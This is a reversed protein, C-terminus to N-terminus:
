LIYRSLDQDRVVDALRQQVYEADITLEKGPMDPADFSIEDLLREMITYLRRAGINETSANVQMAIEAIAEVAEPLFRLTVRETRLLEVYQRLLANEPETLIRVFDDRTLPELEVRIPFRGQLEPILDSPKAVHFAGAAIFLVHDTRVIGYKTTVASGEVIPLLDRQVGERSVDPGGHGGGQRGAIKDMEDLFVIGSNEVRRVAQAVVEEMDVLKGAEEQALLRRAEAVRVRRRKTRSPLINSLMDKLQIGMEEMGQGSLIEVMPMAQQQTELEVMREDLRGARLQARLKELTSERSADPSIQELSGSSFPEASRHPLLLDLLRDEALREAKDRVEAMLEAKVMTVGLETLDRVMSEVDRGVYGVETYKSAEVKLFPAQALKALRRAVETKGVGTPGIMIINKPAVEDRLEAPLMQRRWRNRLAIAVARKARRQGVIYRDLEAVIQAPTLGTPAPTTM